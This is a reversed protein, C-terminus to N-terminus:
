GEESDEGEEMALALQRPHETAFRSLADALEDAETPSLAAVAEEGGPLLRWYKMPIADLVAVRARNMETWRELQASRGHDILEPFRVELVRYWPVLMALVLEDDGLGMAGFGMADDSGGIRRIFEAMTSTFEAIRQVLTRARELDELTSAQVTEVLVDLNFFDLVNGLEDVPVSETLPGIEGVRDTEAARLGSGDIIEQLADDRITGEYPFSGELVTRLMVINISQFISRASEKRGRLREVWRRGEETQSARSALALGAAEAVDFPDKSSTTKGVLEVMRHFSRTYADRLTEIDMPVGRFFLVTAIECYALRADRLDLIQAMVDETGPLYRRASGRGEPPPLLGERRCREIRRPSVAHGLEVLRAALEADAPDVYRRRKM